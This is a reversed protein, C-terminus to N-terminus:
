PYWRDQWAPHLEFPLAFAKMVTFAVISDVPWCPGAERERQIRRECDALIRRQVALRARIEAPCPCSCAGASATAQPIPCNLEHFLTSADEEEDWRTRLFVALDSVTGIDEM